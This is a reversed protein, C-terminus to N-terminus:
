YCLGDIKPECVDAAGPDDDTLGLGKRVGADFM